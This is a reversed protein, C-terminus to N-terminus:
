LPQDYKFQSTLSIGDQWNIQSIFNWAILLIAATIFLYLLAVFIAAIDLGGFKLLHYLSLASLFLFIAVLGLYIYYFLAFPIIM